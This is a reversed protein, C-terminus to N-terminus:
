VGCRSPFKELVRWREVARLDCFSVQFEKPFWKGCALESGKQEMCPSKPNHDRCNPECNAKHVGCPGHLNNRMVIDYLECDENPDPIEASIVRDVDDGTRLQDEDDM